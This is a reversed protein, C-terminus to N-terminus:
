NACGTALRFRWERRIRCAGLGYRFAIKPRRGTGRPDRPNCRSRAWNASCFNRPRPSQRRAPLFLKWLSRLKVRFPSSTCNSTPATPSVSRRSGPRKTRNSPVFAAICIREANNGSIPSSAAPNWRLNNWLRHFLDPAPMAPRPGAHLPRGHSRPKDRSAKTEEGKLSPLGVLVWRLARGAVAFFDAETLQDADELVLVDFVTAPKAADGFHADNELTQPTAAVLNVSSALRRPLDELVDPLAGRWRAADLMQEEAKLQEEWRAFAAHLASEGPEIPVLDPPLGRCAAAWEQDLRRRQESSAAIRQELEAGRRASELAIAAEREAQDTAKARAANKRWTKQRKKWAARPSASRRFRKATTKSAHPWIAGSSRGGGRM